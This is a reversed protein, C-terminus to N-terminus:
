INDKMNKRELICETAMETARDHAIDVEGYDKYEAQDGTLYVFPKGVVLGHNIGFEHQWMLCLPELLHIFFRGM